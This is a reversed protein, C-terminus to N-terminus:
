TKRWYKCYSAEVKDANQHRWDFLSIGWIKFNIIIEHVVVLINKDVYNLLELLKKMIIVQKM